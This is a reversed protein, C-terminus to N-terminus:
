RKNTPSENLSMGLRALSERFRPLFDDPIIASTPGLRTGVWNRTDPHQCLGDMIEATPTNLVLPRSASLPPLKGSTTMLLLRIAPPAENGTRREFWLSLQHANLGSEVGRALSASSVEFRRRPATSSGRANESPLEDAFRSLEADVLLDSRALDLSLQIGESEVDVCIEPPRRYDRSGTMRFRTFPISSEEEVLLLRDTIRLPPSRQDSPWIALAQVLEEPTAFEVLTASGYYTVRERRGAWTKLAEAVGAPLARSSHKALLELMSQPTLGGELGRYVSEPTLKLTLAAGVASWVAFRSFRGVLSPSLGQRYAIVEFSPQVFLFHPFDPKPPPPNGIALAYRGLPTLQVVRRNGPVEEAARILGLQYCPGLLMAELPGVETKESAVDSKKQRSTKPRGVGNGTPLTPNPLFAPRDWTSSRAKLFAALDDIAVWHGEELTALWLLVAPRAFPLALMAEAGDRQMGGQEHWNRLGLWRAAIMQPLHIANDRWYEPAAARLRDSGAESELLGVGRALALWFAPMDPIPEIADAIPGALVTDDEIRERDRKYFTGNQTQRLPAESVRQWVVALRLIAELGDAERIQRVSEVPPLSGAEVIPLVTRVASLAAPHAILSRERRRDPRNELWRALDHVLINDEKGFVLLGTELLPMIAGVLEVGLIALSHEVAELPWIPSETLAFLSLVLRSDKELGVLVREAVKPEALFESIASPLRGPKKPFEVMGSRVGIAHLRAGDYRELGQVFALSPPVVPRPPSGLQDCSEEGDQDPEPQQELDSESVSDPETESDDVLDPKAQAEDM